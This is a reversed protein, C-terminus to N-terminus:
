EKANRSAYVWLDEFGIQCTASVNDERERGRGMKRERAM